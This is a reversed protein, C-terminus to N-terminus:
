EEQFINVIRPYTKRHDIRRVKIYANQDIADQITHTKSGGGDATICHEPDVAIAVHIAKGKNNFWFLLCGETPKNVEDSNFGKWLDNATSDGKIPFKGVAQLGEITLGSCDFASFDDGGYVYPTNLHSWIVRLFMERAREVNRM